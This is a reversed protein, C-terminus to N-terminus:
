RDNLALDVVTFLSPDSGVRIDTAGTTRIVRFHYKGMSHWICRTAAEEKRSYGAPTKKWGPLDTAYPDTSVVPEALRLKLAKVEAELEGVVDAMGHLMRDTETSCAARLMSLYRMADGVHASMVIPGDFTHASVVLAVDAIGHKERLSRVDAIFADISAGVEENTRPVSNRLYAEKDQLIM